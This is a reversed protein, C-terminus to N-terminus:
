HGNPAAPGLNTAGVNLALGNLAGELVGLGGGLKTGLRRGALGGSRRLGIGAKQREGSRLMQCKFWVMGTGHADKVPSLLVTALLRYDKAAKHRFLDLGGALNGRLGHLVGGLKGWLQGWPMQM